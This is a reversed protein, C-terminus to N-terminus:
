IHPDAPPPDAAKRALPRCRLDGDLFPADGLAPFGGLRSLLIAIRAPRDLVALGFDALAGIGLCRLGDIEGDRHEALLVMDADVLGVVPSPQRVQDALTM